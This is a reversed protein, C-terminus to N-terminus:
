GARKPLPLRGLGALLTGALGADIEQGVDVISSATNKSPKVVRITTMTAKKKLRLRTWRWDATLAAAYRLARINRSAAPKSLIASLVMAPTIRGPTKSTNSM